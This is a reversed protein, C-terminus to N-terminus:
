MFDYPTAGCNNYSVEEMGKVLEKHKEEERQLNQKKIDLTSQVKTDIRQVETLAKELSQLM